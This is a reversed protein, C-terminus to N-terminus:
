QGGGPGTSLHWQHRSALWSAESASSLKTAGEAGSNVPEALALSSHEVGQRAREVDPTRFSSEREDLKTDLTSTSTVAM